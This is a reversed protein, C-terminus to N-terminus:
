HHINICLRSKGNHCLLIISDFNITLTTFHLLIYIVYFMLRICCHCPGMSKYYTLLRAGKPDM